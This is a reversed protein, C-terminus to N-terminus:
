ISFVKDIEDINDLDSLLKDIHEDPILVQLWPGHIAYPQERNVFSGQVSSTVFTITPIGDINKFTFHRGHKM